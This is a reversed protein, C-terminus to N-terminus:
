ASLERTRFYGYYSPGWDRKVLEQKALVMKYPELDKYLIVGPGVISYPGVRVGPMLMTGVGTRCYDGIYAMSEAIYRKGKVKVTPKECDFRLDGVLTGAGIDVNEGIVGDIESYHTIYTKDFVIGSVEAAHGIRVHSGLIASVQCYNEVITNDGIIGRGLIAGRDIRTNEGIFMPSKIVVGDGIESNEGIAIPAKIVAKPSIKVNKGIRNEKFSKALYEYYKRNARLINWPFDLDEFFGKVETALVEKNEDVMENVSQNLEVELPPMVAIASNRM